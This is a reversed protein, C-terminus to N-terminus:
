TPLLYYYKTYVIHQTNTGALAANIKFPEMSSISDKQLQKMAFASRCGRNTCTHVDFMTGLIIMYAALKMNM